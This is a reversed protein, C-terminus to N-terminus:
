CEDIQEPTFPLVSLLDEDIYDYFKRIAAFFDM